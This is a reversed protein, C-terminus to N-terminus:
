AKVIATLALQRHRALCMTCGYLTRMTEGPIVWHCRTNATQQYCPVAHHYVLLWHSLCEVNCGPCGNKPHYTIHQAVSKLLKNSVDITILCGSRSGPGKGCQTDRDAIIQRISIGLLLPRNTDMCTMCSTSNLWSSRLILQTCCMRLLASMLQVAVCCDRCVTATASDDATSVLSTRSTGATNAVLYCHQKM